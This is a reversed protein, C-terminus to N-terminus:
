SALTQKRREGEAEMYRQRNGGKNHTCGVKSEARFNTIGDMSRKEGGGPGFEHGM